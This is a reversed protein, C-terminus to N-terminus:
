AFWRGIPVLLAPSIGVGDNGAMDPLDPCSERSKKHLSDNRCSNEGNLRILRNESFMRFEPRRIEVTFGDLAIIFRPIRNNRIMKDCNKDPEM